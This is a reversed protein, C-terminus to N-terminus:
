ANSVLLDMRAPKSISCSILNKYLYRDLRTASAILNFLFTRRLAMNACMQRSPGPTIGPKELSRGMSASPDNGPM